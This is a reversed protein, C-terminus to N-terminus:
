GQVFVQQHLERIRQALEVQSPDIKVIRSCLDLILDPPSGAPPVLSVREYGLALLEGAAEPNGRLLAKLAAVAIMLASHTASWDSGRAAPNHVDYNPDRHVSQAFLDLDVRWFLPVGAFQAFVLRRRDSNQFDRDLRLSELPHV